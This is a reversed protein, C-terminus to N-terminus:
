LLRKFVNMIHLSYLESIGYALIPFFFNSVKLVENLISSPVVYSAAIDCSWFGVTYGPVTNQSYSGALFCFLKSERGLM